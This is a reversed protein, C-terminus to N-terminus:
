TPGPPTPENSFKPPYDMSKDSKMSVCSPVPSPPRHTQPTVDPPTPENSFKPPYDMSKDSKMSVCSPVPSPPRHTQPTPGPPIPENSFKPPYDMSKDSKMSVCSPVPSPPRPMQPRADHHSTSGADAMDNKTTGCGHTATEPGLTESHGAVEEREQSVSM